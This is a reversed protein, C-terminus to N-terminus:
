VTDRPHAFQTAADVPPAFGPALTLNPIPSDATRSLADSNRLWLHYEPGHLSHDTTCDVNWRRLLYGALAARVPLTLVGDTMGYEFAITDPHQLAPHPVLELTLQTQWDRDETRLQDVNSAKAAVEASEIRNLVFDAYRRRDVDFARLHWRLGNDVLALPVISRRSFGRSLSRYAITLSNGGFLARSIPILQKIGPANLRCPVETPLWTAPETVFDDGYGEALATLVQAPTYNYLPTFDVGPRYTENAQDYVINDPAYQRYLALDRAAASTSLNFRQKLDARNLCGLFLLRFEIHALREHQPHGFQDFARHAM